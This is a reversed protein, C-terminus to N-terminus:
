RTVGVTLILLDNPDLAEGPPFDRYRLLFELRDGAKLSTAIERKETCGYYATGEVGPLHQREQVRGGFAAKEIARGDRLIRVRVKIRGEVIPITSGYEVCARIGGPISESVLLEFQGKKPHGDTSMREVHDTAPLVTAAAAPAVLLLVPLLFCRKSM